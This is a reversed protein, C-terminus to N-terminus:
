ITCLQSFTCSPPLRLKCRESHIMTTLLCSFFPFPRFMHYIQGLISTCISNQNLFCFPCIWKCSKAMCSLIINFRVNFNYSELAHFTRKQKMVSVLLLSIHVRYHVKQKGSSRSIEQSFFSSFNTELSFQNIHKNLEFVPYKRL